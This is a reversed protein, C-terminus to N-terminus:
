WAVACAVKGTTSTDLAVLTEGAYVSCQLPASSETASSVTVDLSRSESGTHVERLVPTSEPTEEYLGAGNSIRTLVDEPSPATVEVRLVSVGAPVPSVPTDAPIPPKVSSPDAASSIWGVQAPDPPLNGWPDQPGGWQQESYGGDPYPSPDDHSTSVNSMVLFVGVTAAYPLWAPRRRGARHAPRTPPTTLISPTTPPAPRPGTKPEHRAWADPPLGPLPAPQATSSTPPTLEPFAVHRDQQPDPLAPRTPDSM